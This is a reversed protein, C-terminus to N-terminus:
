ARSLRFGARFNVAIGGSPVTCRIVWGESVASDPTEGLPWDYMVLAKNPDLDYSDHITGTLATPEATWSQAATMGATIVRGAYQQVTVSTSNTGPSNTAWTCYAVEILVPKESSTIGDMSVWYGKLDLGFNAHSKVGLITKAVTAAGSAVVAETRVKYYAQAM